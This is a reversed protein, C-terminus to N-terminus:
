VNAASLSFTVSDEASQLLLRLCRDLSFCITACMGALRKEPFTNQSSLGMSKVFLM